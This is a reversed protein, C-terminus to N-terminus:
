VPGQPGTKPPEAAPAAPTPGGRANGPDTAEPAPNPLTQEADPVDLGMVRLPDLDGAALKEHVHGVWQAPDNQFSARVAAPLKYFLANTEALHNQLDHYDQTTSFDGYKPPVAVSPAQGTKLFKDVIHNIDTEDRMHQQTKSDDQCILATRKAEHTTNHNFPTKWDLLEGDHSIAGSNM